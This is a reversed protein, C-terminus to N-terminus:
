PSDEAESVAIFGFCKYLAGVWVCACEFGGVSCEGAADAASGVFAGTCFGM